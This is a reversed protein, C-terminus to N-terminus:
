AGSSGTSYMELFCITSLIDQHSTLGTFHLGSGAMYMNGLSIRCGGVYRWLLGLRTGLRPGFASSRCGVELGRAAVLEM